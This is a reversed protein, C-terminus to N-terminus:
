SGKENNQLIFLFSKVNSILFFIHISLNKKELWKLCNITLVPFLCLNLYMLGNNLLCKFKYLHDHKFLILLIKNKEWSIQM